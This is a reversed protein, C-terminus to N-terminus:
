GTECIFQLDHLVFKIVITREDRAKAKKVPLSIASLSRNALKVEGHRTGRANVAIVSPIQETVSTVLM